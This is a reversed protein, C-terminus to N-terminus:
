GRPRRASVFAVQAVMSAGFFWVNMALAGFLHIGAALPVTFRRRAGLAVLVALALELTVGARALWANGALTDVLHRYADPYPWRQVVALYQHRVFLHGGSLWGANLKLLATAFYIWATQWRLVHKPWAVLRDGDPAAALQALILATIACCYFDNLHLFVIAELARLAAIAALPLRSRRLVLGAAESAVLCARVVLLARARGPALFAGSISETGHLLVDLVDYALWIGCFSRVFWAVDRRASIM